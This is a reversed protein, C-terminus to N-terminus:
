RKCRSEKDICVKFRLMSVSRHYLYRVGNNCNNILLMSKNKPKEKSSSSSSSSSDCQKKRHSYDNVRIYGKLVRGNVYSGGNIAYFARLPVNEEDSDDRYATVLVVIVFLVFVAAEKM